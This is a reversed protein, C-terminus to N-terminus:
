KPVPTASASPGGDITLFRAPPVIWVEVRRNVPNGKKGPANPAVPHYEGFGMAGLRPNAIGAGSMIEQVSVARHVSLYWNTPHRKGTAASIPLDDTHGVIYIHFPMADVSKLINAFKLLVEKAEPAVADSGKAFLLDTKFKVMGREPDYEMLDPYQEALKRLAADLKEPLVSIPPMPPLGPDRTDRNYRALLENYTNTLSALQAKLNDLERDKTALNANAADLEAKLQRQDDLAQQLAEHASKLEAQARNNAAIAEKLQDNCGGLVMLASLSVLSVVWVSRANM